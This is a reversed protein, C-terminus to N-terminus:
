YYFRFTTDIRIHEISAGAFCFQASVFALHDSIVEVGLSTGVSVVVNALYVFVESFVAEVHDYEVWRKVL